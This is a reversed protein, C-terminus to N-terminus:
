ACGLYGYSFTCVLLQLYLLVLGLAGGSMRGATVMKHPFTFRHHSQIISEEPDM